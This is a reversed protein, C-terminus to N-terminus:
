TQLLRGPEGRGGDIDVALRRATGAGLPPPPGKAYSRCRTVKYLIEWHDPGTKVKVWAARAGASQLGEEPDKLRMFPCLLATARACTDCLPELKAFGRRDVPYPGSM